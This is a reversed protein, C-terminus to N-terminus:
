APIAGELRYRLFAGLEYDDLATPVLVNQVSGGSGRVAESIADIVDPVRRLDGGCVRCQAEPANAIWSCDGCTRGPEALGARVVLTDVARQNVAGITRVAGLVAPGGSAVTDFLRAVLNRQEDAEFAEAVRRSHELVIAPTMTGPDIAFTGALHKALDPHIADVLREVHESPGGAILLDFGPDSRQLDYLRAAVVKYHRAAVADAHSRV